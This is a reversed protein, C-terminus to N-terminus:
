ESVGLRSLVRKRAEGRERDSVYLLGAIRRLLNAEYAHLEGDAYVVEWLLEVLEVRQAESFESKVTLTYRNLDSAKDQKAEAMTVLNTAAESTLGFHRQLITTVTEREADNFEGDMCAADVLLVAAAVHIDQSHSVVSRPAATFLAKLADIM